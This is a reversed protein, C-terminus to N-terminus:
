GESRYLFFLSLFINKCDSLMLPILPIQIPVYGYNWLILCLFTIAYVIGLQLWKLLENIVIHNNRDRSARQRNQEQNENLNRESNLEDIPTEEIDPNDM